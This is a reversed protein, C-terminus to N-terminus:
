QAVRVPLVLYLYQDGQKPVVVCPAVSSNFRMCLVDESVNRILDIIYRANFSIDLDEGSMSIEMEEEINGMEANSTIKLVNQRFSMRIMNNKGERAMLSAREIADQVSSRDALAEVKYETPIIRRYDIYEGSLLSSILCINGFNFQIRGNDVTMVCFSDDDPLIRALENIVKGPIIAKIMEMGAPLEFPQFLKQLSLRFGDLAILRAESRSIEMLSGTLIPRSEDSAIAFTVHSIMDKLKKQPIKVLTGQHLHQIVPYEAPDMVALTSRNKMCRIVASRGETVQVSVTGAPMKRILETIMRGPLVTEGEEENDSANTYEIVMSGDSCTMTVRGDRASFLIGELIQKAPRASLSRTVTTLGELLDQTNMSFKM